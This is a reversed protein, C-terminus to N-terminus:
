VARKTRTTQPLEESPQGVQQGFTSGGACTRCVSGREANYLGIPCSNCSTGGRGPQFSTRSCNACSSAGAALSYKAAPCARCVARAQTNAGTGAYKGAICLSGSCSSSKFETTWKGPPCPPCSSSENGSSWRGLACEECILTKESFEGATIVRSFEGPECYQGVHRHSTCVQVLTQLVVALARM